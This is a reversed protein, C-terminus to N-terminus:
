GGSQFDVLFRTAVLITNFAFRLKRTPPEDLSWIDHLERAALGVAERATTARSRTRGLAIDAAESLEIFRKARQRVTDNHSHMVSAQPEYVIRYGADIVRAAWEMDEAAPFAFRHQEWITRRICSAANSFILGECNKADFIRERDGFTEAVRKAEHWEGDPWAIQRCCVGAVASDGFPRTMLGLWESERPIAHASLIIILDGQAREIGLNLSASYHFHERAVEIITAGYEQAITPTGDTSGSDVVIIELDSGGAQARLTELCTGILASENLARIVVSVAQGTDAADLAPWPTTAETLGLTDTPEVAARESEKNNV